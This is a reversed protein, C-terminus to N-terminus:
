SASRRGRATGDGSTRMPAECADSASMETGKPTPPTHCSGLPIRAAEDRLTVAIDPEPWHFADKFGSRTDRWVIM